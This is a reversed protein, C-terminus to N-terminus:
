AAGFGRLVPRDASEQPAATTVVSYEEPLGSGAPAPRHFVDAQCGRTHCKIHISKLFDSLMSPYQLVTTLM